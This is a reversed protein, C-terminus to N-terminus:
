NDRAKRSSPGARLGYDSLAQTLMQKEVAYLVDNLGADEPILQRLDVEQGWVPRAVSYLTDPQVDEAEIIENSCLIAAREITNELERINGEWPLKMLLKMADASISLDPKGLEKKYKEM